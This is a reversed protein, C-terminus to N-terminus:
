GFGARVTARGIVHGETFDIFVRWKSRWAFDLQLSM